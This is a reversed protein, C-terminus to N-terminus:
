FEIRTTPEVIGNRSSNTLVPPLSWRSKRHDTKRRCYATSGRFGVKGLIRSELLERFGENVPTTAPARCSPRRSTRARHDCTDSGGATPSTRGRGPRVLASVPPLAAYQVALVALDFRSPGNLGKSLGPGSVPGHVQLHKRLGHDPDIDNIWQRSTERGFLPGLSSETPAERWAGSVACARLLYEWRIFAGIERSDPRSPELSDHGSFSRLQELPDVGLVRCVKIVTAEQVWDDALQQRILMSLHGTAKSLTTLGINPAVTTLWRRFDGEAVVVGM